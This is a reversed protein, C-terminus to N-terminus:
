NAPVNYGNEANFFVAAAADKDAIGESQVAYAKVELELEGLNEVDNSDFWEPLKVGDFVQETWNADHTGFYYVERYTCVDGSWEYKNSVVSDNSLERSRETTMDTLMVTPDYGHKGYADWIKDADKIVIEVFVHSNESDSELGVTVAKSYAIGPKVHDYSFGGNGNDTGPTYGKESNSEETLVVDVKGFTFTNKVTEHDTLCAITGGIAMVVALCAAVAGILFKKKTTM